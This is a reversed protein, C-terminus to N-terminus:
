QRPNAVLEGNSEIVWTAADALMDPVTPTVDDPFTCHVIFGDQHRECWEPDCVEDVPEGATDLILRRYDRFYKVMGNRKDWVVVELPSGCQEREDLFAVPADYEGLPDPPQGPNKSLRYYGHAHGDNPVYVVKGAYVARTLFRILAPKTPVRWGNVALSDLIAGVTIGVDGQHALMDWVATPWDNFNISSNDV